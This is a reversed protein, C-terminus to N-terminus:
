PRKSIFILPSNEQQEKVLAEGRAIKVFSRLADVAFFGFCPLTFLVLLLYKPELGLPKIMLLPSFALFCGVMYVLIALAKRWVRSFHKKYKYRFDIKNSAEVLEVYRRALVYDKLRREADSLSILYKIESVKMSVTGAIAYYGREIVLHHLKPNAEIDGLFEKAFRYDDKLRLRSGMSFEYIIKAIGAMAALALIIKIFQEVDM